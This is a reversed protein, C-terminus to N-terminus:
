RVDHVGVHPENWLWKATKPRCRTKWCVIVYPGCGLVTWAIRTVIGRYMRHPKWSPETKGDM